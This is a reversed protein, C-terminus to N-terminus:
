SATNPDFAVGLKGRPTVAQWHRLEGTAPDFQLIMDFEGAKSEKSAPVYRYRLVVRGNEMRRESPVGLLTDLAALKPRAAAVDPASVSTAVSKGSQNIEGRGFSRIVGVLFAKPMVAFYKEAIAVRNLRDDAFGLELAIDYEIKESVGPPLQKVWRVVWQEAHGLRQISEPVVGFWRVDGTRMVPQHCIITLGQDSRLAFNRDFHNLQLRLELLRLYVCGGLLLCAAALALAPLFRRRSRRSPTTSM